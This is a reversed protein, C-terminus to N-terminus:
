PAVYVITLSLPTFSSTTVTSTALIDIVDGANASVLCAMTPSIEDIAIHKEFISGLTNAGGVRIVATLQMAAGIGRMLLQTIVQYTGAFPVQFGGAGIKVFPGKNVTPANWPVTIYSQPITTQPGITWMAAQPANTGPPGPPGEPGEEGAPGEPGIVGAAGYVGIAVAGDRDLLIQVTAGPEVGATNLVPVRQMPGIDVFTGDFATVEGPRMVVNRGSRDFPFSDEVRQAM